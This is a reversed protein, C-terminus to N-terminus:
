KEGKVKTEANMTAIKSITEVYKGAGIKKTLNSMVFKRGNNGYQKCIDRDKYLRLIAEVFAEEDGALTFIGCKNKEIIIQLESEDFNALVPRSASMISWTKSPVCGNGTGPKSIVLSVDGLSFVHSIDEYPQFPLLKINTLQKAEIVKELEEKFAGNGVLVFAIDDYQKLREAANVLLELNQSLGINGCYSIYFRNRDLRYKDFLKNDTREVNVVAHEDVWNYVVSVKNESVGKILINKKFDESITIIHDSNNYTYDEIKRGIKWALSNQSSIGTLVLSDPFIDQLNFVLPVKLRKKILAATAGLIPPTSESFIVDVGKSQIGMFFYKICCLFYRVFRGITGKGEMYMKFRRIHLKGDRQYEELKHRYSKNVSKDVGRGPIPCILEVVAGSDILADIANEFLYISAATEPSYYALLFLVRM